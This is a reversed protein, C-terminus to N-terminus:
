SARMGAWVARALTPDIGTGWSEIPPAPRQKRLRATGGGEFVKGENDLIQEKVADLQSVIGLEQEQPQEHHMIKMYRQFLRVPLKFAMMENVTLFSNDGSAIFLGRMDVPVDEPRVPTYGLRARTMPSDGTNSTTLWCVHFGEIPPIAPLRDQMFTIKLLDEREEDSVDRAQRSEDDEPAEAARALREETEDVRETVRRDARPNNSM